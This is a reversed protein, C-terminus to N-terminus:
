DRIRDLVERLMTKLEAVEGRLLAIEDTRAREVVEENLTRGSIQRAAEVQELVSPPFRITKKIPKQKTVASTM